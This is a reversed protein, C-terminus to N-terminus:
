HKGNWSHHDLTHKQFMAEQLLDVVHTSKAFQLPTHGNTDQAHALEPLRAMFLAVLAVDNTYAAFHLGNHGAIDSQLSFPALSLMDHRSTDSYHFVPPLPSARMLSHEKFSIVAPGVHEAVPLLCVMSQSTCSLMTAARNGFMVTLGRHFHQGTLTVQIGGMTSGSAPMIQDLVPITTDYTLLSPSCTEPIDDLRRRRTPPAFFDQDDQFVYPQTFTFKDSLPFGDL